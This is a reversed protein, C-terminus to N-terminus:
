AVGVVVDGADTDQGSRASESAVPPRDGGPGGSESVGVGRDQGSEALAKILDVMYMTAVSTVQGLRHIGTTGECMPVTHTRVGSAQAMQGELSGTGGPQVPSVWVVGEQHARVLPQSAVSRSVGLHRTIVGTTEGQAYYMSAAEYVRLLGGPDATNVVSGVTDATTRGTM